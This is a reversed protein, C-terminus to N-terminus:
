SPEKQLWDSNRRQLDRLKRFASQRDALTRGDVGWAESNPYVEAPEIFRGDIEFGERCRIRIVEYCPSPESCGTWTQEYIAIGGERAIQRYSFGAHRFEKPIPKYSHGKSGRAEAMASARSSSVQLETPESPDHKETFPAKMERRRRNTRPSADARKERRLPAQGSTARTPASEGCSNVRRNRDLGIAKSAGATAAKASM